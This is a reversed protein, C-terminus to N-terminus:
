RRKPKMKVTATAIRLRLKPIMAKKMTERDRKSRIIEPKPNKVAIWDDNDANLRPLVIEFDNKTNEKSSNEINNTTATEMDVDVM